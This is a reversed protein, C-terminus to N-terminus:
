TILAVTTTQINPPTITASFQNVVVNRFTTTADRPNSASAANHQEAEHDAIRTATGTTAFYADHISQILAFSRLCVFLVVCRHLLQEKLPCQQQITVTRSGAEVFLLDAVVVRLLCCVACLLCCPENGNQRERIWVMDYRSTAGDMTTQSKFREITGARAVCDPSEWNGFLRLKVRQHRSSFVLRSQVGM